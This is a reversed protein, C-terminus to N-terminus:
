TLADSIFRDLQLRVQSDSIDYRYICTDLWAKQEDSISASALITQRTKELREQVGEDVALFSEILEMMFLRTPTRPGTANMIGELAEKALRRHDEPKCSM